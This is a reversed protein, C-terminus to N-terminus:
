RLRRMAGRIALMQRDFRTCAACVSVHLRLKVRQLWPLRRDMSEALMRHAQKCSLRLGLKESM